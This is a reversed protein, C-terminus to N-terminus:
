ASATKAPTPAQLTLLRHLIDQDTVLNAAIMRQARIMARVLDEPLGSLAGRNHRTVLDRAAAAGAAGAPTLTIVVQRRDTAKAGRRVFGDKVLQDITRTLTTRDVASYEALESMTCSDFRLIVTLARYKALNVGVPRLERELQTDRLRGIAVSLHFLYIVPDFPFEGEPDPEFHNQPGSDM